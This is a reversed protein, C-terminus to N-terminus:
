SQYGCHGDKPASTGASGPTTGAPVLEGAAGQNYAAAEIMFVLALALLSRSRAIGLKHVLAATFAENSLSYTSRFLERLPMQAELLTCDRLLLQAQDVHDALPPFGHAPSHQEVDDLLKEFRLKKQRSSLKEQVGVHDCESIQQPSTLPLKNRPYISGAVDICERLEAELNTPLCILSASAGVSRLFGDVAKRSQAWAAYYGLLTV